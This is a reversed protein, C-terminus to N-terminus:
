PQIGHAKMYSLFQSPVEALVQQALSQGNPYQRFPVFQVIDRQAVSGYSQLPGGDADLAHMSSFDADGVGVIIISMPLTSAAVIASKTSDMDTIAGDTIILLVYYGTSVERAYNAVGNIIPAFNTPGWLQYTTVAHQYAAMMGEVGACFPNSPNGNLAFEHSVSGDPLKAGFGMCPFQKDSDYDAIITGVNQIAQMYENPQMPNIYHLSSPSSPEGVICRTPSLPRHSVSRQQADNSGTFDIALSFNIQYGNRLYDLFSATKKQYNAEITLEGSNTYKSRGTKKPNILEYSKGSGELLATLTTEFRGILDHGGDLDWDFVEVMLPRNYDGNCLQSVPVTRLQFTPDLTKKIIESTCVASWGGPGQRHIKYFPDSKGFLDKKDLHHGAIKFVVEGAQGQSEEATVTINGRNSAKGKYHLVQTFCSSHEGVIAGITTVAEGILDHEKLSSSTSDLDYVMFKIPQHREFYYDVELITSFNVESANQVCETRGLEQYQGSADQTFVVVCPDSKSGADLKKLNGAAFHLQLKCMPEAM